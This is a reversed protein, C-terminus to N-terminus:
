KGNPITDDTILSVKFEHAPKSEETANMRAMEILEQDVGFRLLEECMKHANVRIGPSRVVLYVGVQDGTYIMGNDDPTRPQRIHDFIIGARVANGHAVDKRKKALALLHASVFLDWAISATNESSRPPLTPKQNGIQAFSMNINDMLRNKLRSSLAM